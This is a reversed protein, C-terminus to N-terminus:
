DQERVDALASIRPRHTEGLQTVLSHLGDWEVIKLAQTSLRMTLETTESNNYLEPAEICCRSAQENSIFSGTVHDDENKSFSDITMRTRDISDTQRVMLVARVFSQEDDVEPFSLFSSRKSDNGCTECFDHFTHKRFLEVSMRMYVNSSFEDAQPERASVRRRPPFVGTTPGTIIEDLAKGLSQSTAM